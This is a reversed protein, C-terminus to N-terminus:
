SLGHELFRPIPLLKSSAAHKPPCWDGERGHSCCKGLDTRLHVSKKLHQVSFTGVIFFPPLAEDGRGKIYRPINDFARPLITPLQNFRASRQRGFKNPLNLFSRSGFMASAKKDLVSCPVHHTKTHKWVTNLVLPLCTQITQIPLQFFLFSQPLPARSKLVEEELM